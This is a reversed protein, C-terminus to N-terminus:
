TALLLGFQPQGARPRPNAWRSDGTETWPAAGNRRGGVEPVGKTYSQVLVALGVRSRHLQHACPCQHQQKRRGLSQIWLAPM